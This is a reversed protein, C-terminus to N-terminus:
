VHTAVPSQTALADLVRCEVDELSSFDRPFDLSYVPVAGAITLYAEVLAMVRARDSADFCHAHMLLASFAQTAGIRRIAIARDGGPPQLVFVALLPAAPSPPQSVPISGRSALYEQSAERLRPAFPLPHASVRGTEVSLVVADDATQSLGPRRGLACALTSKGTGSVGCFAAVGGPVRVSSAHLTQYGLAQLIVPQVIHLVASTSAQPRLGAAPWLRVQASGAAFTLVGVGRWELRYGGDHASAEAFSVGNDDRWANIARGFVPPPAGEAVVVDVM